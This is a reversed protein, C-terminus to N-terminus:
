FQSFTNTGTTLHIQGFHLICKDWNYFHVTWITFIHKDWNDFTNQNASFSDTSSSFFPLPTPTAATLETGTIAPAALYPLAVEALSDPCQQVAIM